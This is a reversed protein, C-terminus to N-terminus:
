IQGRIRIWHARAARYTVEVVEEELGDADYDSAHRVANGAANLDAVYREDVTGDNTDDEEEIQRDPTFTFTRLRDIVGDNNSDTEVRVARGQLDYHTIIRRDVTGDADHDSERIRRRTTDDYIFRELSDFVGDANADRDETLPRGRSDHSQRVYSDPVGDANADRTMFRPYRNADYTYATTSDITGDANFDYEVRELLGRANRTFTSREDTTGDGDEDRIIERIYGLDDYAFTRENVLTEGQFAQTTRLRHWADYTQVTTLEITGDVGEDLEFLAMAGFPTLTTRQLTEPTGDADLDQIEDVRFADLRISRATSDVVGDGDSDNRTEEVEEFGHALGLRELYTDLAVAALPIPRATGGWLGAAVGDRLLIRYDIHEDFHRTITDFDLTVGGLLAHVEEPIQIGNDLDVDGDLSQLFIILNLFHAEASKETGHLTERLVDNSLPVGGGPVLDAATMREKAPASGLITDGVRFEITEGPEFAFEGRPGTFGQRTATEYYLGQVRVAGFGPSNDIITDGGGGGAGGGGCATLLLATGLGTLARRLM